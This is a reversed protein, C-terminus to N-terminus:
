EHKQPIQQRDELSFCQYIAVPHHPMMGWFVVTVTVAMPVEFRV